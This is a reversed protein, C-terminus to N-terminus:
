DSCVSTRIKDYRKKEGQRILWYDDSVHPLLIMVWMMYVKNLMPSNIIGTSLRADKPKLNLAETSILCHGNLVRM